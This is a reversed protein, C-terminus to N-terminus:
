GLERRRSLLGWYLCFRLGDEALMVETRGTTGVWLRSFVPTRWREGHGRRNEVGGGGGGWPEPIM